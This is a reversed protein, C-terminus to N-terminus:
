KSVIKSSNLNTLNWNKHNKRKKRSGMELAGVHHYVLRPAVELQLPASPESVNIFPAATANILQNMPKYAYSISFFSSKQKLWNMKFGVGQNFIVDKKKVPLLKYRVRFHIDEHSSGTLVLQNQPSSFWPNKSVLNQNEIKFAPGTEPIFFPSYFLLFHLPGKTSLNDIFFGILGQNESKIKNWRFRPQWLGQKWFEDGINWVYKRRGLTLHFYPWESFSYLDRAHFYNEREVFSYFNTIDVYSKWYKFDGFYNFDFGFTTLHTGWKNERFSDNNGKFFSIQNFHLATYRKKQVPLLDKLFFSSSFSSPTEPSSFAIKPILPILFFLISFSALCLALYLKDLYNDTFFGLRKTTM